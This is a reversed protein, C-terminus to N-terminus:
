GAPEVDADTLEEVTGEPFKVTYKESWWGVNTVVGRVGPKVSKGVGHESWGGLKRLSM